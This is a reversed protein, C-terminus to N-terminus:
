NIKNKKYYEFILGILLVFGALSLALGSKLGKPVYQLLIDNEGEQLPIGIFYDFLKQAVDPKSNVTLKWNEDYMIGTKLSEGAKSKVKIKIKSGDIEYDTVAKQWIDETVVPLIETDVGYIYIDSFVSKTIDCNLTVEQGKEFFGVDITGRNEDSYFEEYEGGNKSIDFPQITNATLLCYYWGSVPATWKITSINNEESLKPTCTYAVPNDRGSSDKYIENFYSALDQKSNQVFGKHTIKYMFPLSYKNTYLNEGVSQTWLPVYSQGDTAVAQISLISDALVGGGKGYTYSSGYNRYGLKYTLDTPLSDKTSGFHSIGNYGYLMGDNLSRIFTREMRFFEEKALGTAKEKQLAVTLVQNQYDQESYPELKSLLNCNSFVVEGIVLTCAILPLFKGRTTNKEFYIITAYIMCLLLSIAMNKKSVTAKFLVIQMIFMLGSFALVYILQNKALGSKNLSNLTYSALIVMFMVFLFAHRHPFWVPSTLGHFLLNAGTVTFSLFFIILVAGSMIKSKKDIGKVTFFLFALVLILLSSYIFPPGSFLNDVSFYGTIFQRILLVPQLCLSFWPAKVGVSKSEFIQIVSPLLMVMPLLGGSLAAWFFSKVAVKGQKIFAFDFKEIYQWVFYIVAFICCMFAIYFNSFTCLAISIALLLGSGNNLVKEIGLLILPLLFIGDLWMINQYYAFNYAMFAYSLCLPLDWNGLNEFKENLYLNTFVASLVIKIFFLVTAFISLKITPFFKLLLLLPSAAYYAVMGTTNGGLGKNFAYGWDANGALIDQIYSYYPVYIGNLDGTLFSRPGFPYIGSFAMILLFCLSALLFAMGARKIKRKKM